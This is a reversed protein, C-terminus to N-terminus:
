SPTGAGRWRAPRLSRLWARADTEAAISYAVPTMLLTLVLCLMQGGIITIAVASRQSSGAGLGVATPLLGAVIAFTTMLIPRLRVRNAELIAERLPVGQSLLTNTYDV